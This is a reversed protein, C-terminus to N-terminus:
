SLGERTEPVAARRAGEREMWEVVPHFHREYNWEELIRQRGREGMARVAAPHECFYELAEAISSPDAPDCTLGYPTLEEWGSTQSILLALGCALYDFVKNSAGFMDALNPDSSNQPLVALGIDCSQCYEMLEARQLLGSFELSRPIGLEQALGQLKALYGSAGLTEYGAIRLVVPYRVRGIARVVATPMRAPVISGHYLLKLAGECSRRPASVEKRLPTNWVVKVEKSTGTQSRLNKARNANPIVCFAAVRAARRRARRLLRMWGPEASVTGEGPPSDHEHYLIRAGLANLIVAPICSAMDSAYVWAPRWRLAWLVCWLCFWPYQLRRKWSSDRYGLYQFRVRPHSPPNPTEFGLAQTGLFLVEWGGDALIESSHLLPPYGCPNTYQIYIVRRSRGCAGIAPERGAAKILAPDGSLSLM